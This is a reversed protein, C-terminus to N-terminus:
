SIARRLVYEGLGVEGKNPLLKDFAEDKAQLLYM